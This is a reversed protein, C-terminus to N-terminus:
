IEEVPLKGYYGRVMSGIEFLSVARACFRLGSGPIQAINWFDQFAQRIFNQDPFKM